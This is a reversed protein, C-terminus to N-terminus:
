LKEGFGCWPNQHFKVQLKPITLPLNQYCHCPQNYGREFSHNRLTQIAKFSKECLECKFKKLEEHINTVHNKLHSKSSFYKCCFECRHGTNESKFDKKHTTKVHQGFNSKTKLARKFDM